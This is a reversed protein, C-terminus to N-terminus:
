SGKLYRKRGGYRRDQRSLKFLNKGAKGDVAKRKCVGKCENRSSCCPVSLDCPELLGACLQISHDKRNCQAGDGTLINSFRLARRLMHLDLVQWFNERFNVDGITAVVNLAEIFREDIQIGLLRLRRLIDNFNEDFNSEDNRVLGGPHPFTPMENLVDIRNSACGEERGAVFYLLKDGNENLVECLFRIETDSSNAYFGGPLLQSVPDYDQYVGYQRPELFVDKFIPGRPMVLGSIYQIKRKWVLLEAAKDSLPEVLLAPADLTRIKVFVDPYLGGIMLALYDALAGGLSHGFLSVAAGTRNFCGKKEAERFAIEVIGERGESESEFAIDMLAGVGTFSVRNIGTGFSKDRRGLPNFLQGFFLLIDNIDNTGAFTIHCFNHDDLVEEDATVSGVNDCVLAHNTESEKDSHWTCGHDDGFYDLASSCGDENLDALIGYGLSMMHMESEIDCLPPDPTCCGGAECRGRSPETITIGHGSYCDVANDRRSDSPLICCDCNQLYAFGELLYCGALFLDKEPPVGTCLEKNNYCVLSPCTGKKYNDFQVLFGEQCRAREAPRVCYYTQPRMSQLWRPDGAAGDAEAEPPALESILREVETSSVQKPLLTKDVALALLPLFSCVVIALRSCSPSFM